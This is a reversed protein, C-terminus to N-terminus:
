MSVDTAACVAAGGARGGVRTPLVPGELGARGGGLGQRVVTCCQLPLELLLGLVAATEAGLATGRFLSSLPM